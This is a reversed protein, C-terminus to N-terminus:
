RRGRNHVVDIWKGGLYALVAMGTMFVLIGGLETGIEITIM